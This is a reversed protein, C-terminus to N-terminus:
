HADRWATSYLGSLIRNRTEAPDIVDDVEMYEAVSIANNEDYLEQLKQRFFADREEEDAIADLDKKFGLRVAGDFGMAGFEGTPWSVAIRPTQFGGGVMAQAGLGYAKRLVVAFLPVTLNAGKVFLKCSQKVQGNKEANLGVMFGPTDCLSLVPLRNVECLSLFDAAKEGADADIAGSLVMSDNAIVGLSRGGIRILATVMSRGFDAKLELMSGEDALCSIVDRVEFVRMRNEPVIHRLKRQDPVDFSDLPGQFYSLLRKAIGVADAEDSAVIDVIGNEAQMAVPGIERTSVTGLGGGEIMAPGGMGINADRTAIVVDACGALAANGAFCPGSVISIIPAKGKLKSFQAFTSVDLGLRVDTDGPRGGGGGAFMILPLGSRHAIDFIRDSKKHNFAGQTGAFVSYDYAVIACKTESEGFCDGNVSGIGAIMGDAPSSARLDDVSYRQRQAAFILGGIEHFTDPDCLDDVNERAMRRNRKRMKAVADPRSVDLLAEKRRRLAALDPRVFDLDVVEKQQKGEGDIEAPRIFALFDGESVTQGHKVLITEIFGDNEARIEQQMKMAEILMIEDGRHIKTGEAVATAVIVGSLPAQVGLLGDPVSLAERGGPVGSESVRTPVADYRWALEIAAAAIERCNRDIYETDIKNQLVDDRSLLAALFAQNSDCGGIKFEDLLGRARQLVGEFPTRESHVILKAILSDYAPNPRYGVHGCSDIRVGPGTPPDFVTLEGTAPRLEGEASIKEANVRLQVAFGRPAEDMIKALGTDCLRAGFALAIQAQVLDAGTIEESVTHEVQLRPNSEIFVFSGGGSDRPRVLFEFTALGHLEVADAIKQSAAVLQQRLDHDISPSPAVEILKQRRRQLTCEREYVHTSHGFKDRLIQVEIHRACVILEEAYLESDGFAALAEAQCHEFARPLEQVSRVIRTGRGGGGSVAKLMMGKGDGLSVLFKEAARLTIPGDVGAPVPAGVMQAVKRARSKDGLAELAGVSPGIFVLGADLCAQSFAASESLFGYGPHIATAGGAKAVAILSQIDLYASAGNGSLTFHSDGFDIHRSRSDDEPAVTIVAYGLARVARAIRIAIEGRNAILIKHTM